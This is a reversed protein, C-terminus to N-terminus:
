FYNFIKVTKFNETILNLNLIFFRDYLYSKRTMMLIKKNLFKNLTAKCYQYYTKFTKM